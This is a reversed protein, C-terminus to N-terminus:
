QHGVNEVAPLRDDDSHATSSNPRANDNSQDLIVAFEEAGLPQGILFGQVEDCGEERLIALQEESGVGEAIVTLQLRHAMAVLASVIARAQEDTGIGSVFSRDIKITEIPFRALHTLSSFGTGFDDLALRVGLNRLAILTDIVGPDETILASETLELELNRPDLGSDHLTREVTQVIRGSRVQHSSVNVALRLSVGDRQWARSQQCATRLVWEGLTEIMGTEEALPIFETPSVAGFEQSQWRALAEVGIIQGSPAEVLPQYHVRLEDREIARRLANELHLCRMARENMSFSCRAYPWTRMPSGSSSVVNIPGSISSSATSVMTCAM